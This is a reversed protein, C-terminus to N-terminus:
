ASGRLTIVKGGASREVAALDDRLASVQNGLAEVTRALAAHDARLSAVEAQEAVDVEVFKSQLANIDLRVHEFENAVTDFTETLLSALEGAIYQHIEGLDGEVEQRLMAFQSATEQRVGEVMRQITSDTLSHERKPEPEPPPKRPEMRIVNSWTELDDLSKRTALIEDVEALLADSEIKLRRYEANRREQAEDIM